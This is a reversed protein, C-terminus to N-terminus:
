HSRQELVCPASQQRNITTSVRRFPEQWPFAKAWKELGGRCVTPLPFMPFMPFMPPTQSLLHFLLPSLTTSPLPPPTLSAIVEMRTEIHTQYPVCRACKEYRRGM